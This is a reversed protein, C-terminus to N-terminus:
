LALRHNGQPVDFLRNGDGVQPFMKIVLITIKAIPGELSELCQGVFGDSTAIPFGNIFTRASRNTRNHFVNEIPQGFHLLLLIGFPIAQIPNRLRELRQHRDTVNLSQREHEFQCFLRSQTLTREFRNFIPQGFRRPVESVLLNTLQGGQIIHHRHIQTIRGAWTGFAAFRRSSVFQGTM